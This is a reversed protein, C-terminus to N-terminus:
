VFMCTHLTKDTPLWFAKMRKHELSTHVSEPYRSLSVEKEHIHQLPKLICAHEELIEELELAELFLKVSSTIADKLSASQLHLALVSGWM